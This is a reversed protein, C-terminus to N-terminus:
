AHSINMVNVIWEGASLVGMKINSLETRVRHADEEMMEAEIIPDIRNLLEYVKEYQLDKLAGTSVM